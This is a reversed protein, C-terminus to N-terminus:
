IMVRTLKSTFREWRRPWTRTRETRKLFVHGCRSVVWLVPNFNWPIGVARTELATIEAVRNAIDANFSSAMALPQPFLTANQIYNAGHISDIGYLIPIKNRGYKKNFDHIKTLIKQWTAPLQARDWPTNLISGVRYTEIATRLKNEDIQDDDFSPNIIDKQIAAFTIQNMQGCKDEKTLKQFISTMDVKQDKFVKDSAYTPSYDIVQASPSSSDLTFKAKQDGVLVSFNGKEYVRKNQQNIFTLDNITLTFTVRQSEQPGLEIKTFGRVQKVPRSVSGFEDNLYLIVTHKGKLCGVNTIKVTVILSDPAALLDTSLKLDTYQFATYSLGHGFEFLYDYTNGLASELPKHDYSTYSNPARPWTLPM